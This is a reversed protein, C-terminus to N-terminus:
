TSSFTPLARLTNSMLGMVQSTTRRTSLFGELGSRFVQSTVTKTRSLTTRTTALESSMYAAM